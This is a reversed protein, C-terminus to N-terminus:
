HKLAYVNGGLNRVKGSIEMSALTTSIIPANLKTKEIIKDVYLAGEKLVEL